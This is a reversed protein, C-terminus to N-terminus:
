IIKGDFNQRNVISRGLTIEDAYELEDGFAVGRAIISIKIQNESLKKHLYFNTTDGEMTSSIALIIEKVDNEAVRKVLSEINLDSPGIGDMPSLIGGLVHYVGKYQETNEIAIVDKISEVVCITSFDRKKDKCISCIDTDSINNCIECYKIDTALSILTDGFRIINENEQKLLHLVLRAATRKGVGPLQSFEDVAKDFLKSSYNTKTM